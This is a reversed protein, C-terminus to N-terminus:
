QCLIEIESILYLNNNKSIIYRIPAEEDFDFSSGVDKIEGEVVGGYPSRYIFKRGIYKSDTKM